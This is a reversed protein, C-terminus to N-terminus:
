SNHIIQAQSISAMLERTEALFKEPQMPKHILKCRPPLAMEVTAIQTDGTVLLAPVESGIARRLREIAEIGTENGRLRYDCVLLDPVRTQVSALADDITEASASSVGWGAFLTMTSERIAVEDDVVLVHRAPYDVTADGVWAASVLADSQDSALPLSFRFVSGRAVRSELEIRTNLLGAIRRAIALGLGLGKTRDREPNDLQLFDEFIEERRDDAIGIGTDWVEISANPGRRRAAVLVSGSPTYRIANHTLNRLIILVLSSDSELVLGSERVTFLIRKELANVTM